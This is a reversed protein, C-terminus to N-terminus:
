SPFQIPAQMKSGKTNRPFAPRSKMCHAVCISPHHTKIQLNTVFINKYNQIFISSSKMTKHVMSLCAIVYTLQRVRVPTMPASYAELLELASRTPFYAQKQRSYNQRTPFYAQKQRRTTAVFLLKEAAVQSCLRNRVSM